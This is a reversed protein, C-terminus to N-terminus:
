CGPGLVDPGGAFGLRWGDPLVGVGPLAAVAVSGGPAASDGARLAGDPLAARFWGLTPLQAPTAEEREGGGEEGM